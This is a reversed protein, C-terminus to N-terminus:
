HLEETVGYVFKQVGEIGRQITENLGREKEIISLTFDSGQKRM